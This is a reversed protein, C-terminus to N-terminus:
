SGRKRKGGGEKHRHSRLGVELLALARCQYTLVLLCAPHHHHLEGNSTLYIGQSDLGIFQRMYKILTHVICYISMVCM